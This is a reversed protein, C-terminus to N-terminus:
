ASPPAAAANKVSKPAKVIERPESAPSVTDIVEDTPAVDMATELPAEIPAEALAEVVLQISESAAEPADEVPVPDPISTAADFAAELNVPQAVPALGWFTLSATTLAAYYSWVPSFLGSFLNLTVSPSEPTESLPM